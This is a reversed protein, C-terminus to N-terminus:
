LEVNEVAYGDNTTYHIKKIGCRKILGMCRSCPHALAPTGDKHERYIYISARSLDVRKKILPLLADVEAHLPGFSECGFMEKDLRAQLAHCRSKSNHGSSVIRHGLVVVCGLKHKHDSFESVAKAANFFSRNTKTIM